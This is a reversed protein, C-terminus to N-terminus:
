EDFGGMGDHVEDKFQQVVVKGERLTCELAHVSDVPAAPILNTEHFCRWLGFVIASGSEAFVGVEAAHCDEEISKSTELDERWASVCLPAIDLRKGTVGDDVKSVRHYFEGVAQQSRIDM